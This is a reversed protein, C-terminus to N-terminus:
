LTFFEHGGYSFLKVLNRDFWKMREPDAYKRSAFFLAGETYDIGSLVKDVAVITEESIKARNYSGNAIPSFQYNDNLKQFVVSKITNPFEDRAVRNLVVGAVLMRGREDEGGAEAEVIRLLINYEEEPLNIRTKEL